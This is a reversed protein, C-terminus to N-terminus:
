QINLNDVSEYHTLIEHEECTPCLGIVEINEDAMKQLHDIQKKGEKTKFLHAFRKQLKLYSSIKPRKAPTKLVKTIKGEIVEIVPFHGTQAALRGVEITLNSDYGWGVPCPVLIHLYKPGYFELAKQVKMKIDLPYGATTSAVYLLGQSVAFAIMNKKAQRAGFSFKGVPTTTTWAGWPTSGSAQIGTNMYAENDFCVYLVNDGREFMGSLARFGIDVTGGDGAFVAVNIRKDLKQARLAAEIGSAVAAANEFLSHIYPVKWASFPYPTTVVELCGTAGVVITNKGLANIVARAAIVQGCGACARHGPALLDKKMYSKIKGNM